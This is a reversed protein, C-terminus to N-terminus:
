QFTTIGIENVEVRVRYLLVSSISACDLDTPKVLVPFKTLYQYGRVDAHIEFFISYMGSEYAVEDFDTGQIEAHIGQLSRRLADKSSAFVMKDKIKADSPTRIDVYYETWSGSMRFKVFWSIFTLKNRQGGDKEFQFDYVAYRCENEPLAELFIEYARAEDIPQVEEKKEVVIETKAANTTFVIFKLKQNKQTKLEEYAEICDRHL